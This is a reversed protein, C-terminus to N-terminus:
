SKYKIIIIIYTYIYIFISLHIKNLGVKSQVIDRQGELVFFFFVNNVFQFTM